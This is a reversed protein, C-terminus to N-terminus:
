IRFLEPFRGSIVKLHRSVSVDHHLRIGCVRYGEQAISM